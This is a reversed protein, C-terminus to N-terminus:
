PDARHAADGHFHSLTFVTAAIRRPEPNIEATADVSSKALLRTRSQGYLQGWREFVAGAVDQLENGFFLVKENAVSSLVVLVIKVPVGTQGHEPVLPAMDLLRLRHVQLAIQGLARLRSFRPHSSAAPAGRPDEQLGCDLEDQAMQVAGKAEYDEGPLGPLHLAGVPM